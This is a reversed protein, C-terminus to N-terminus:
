QLQHPHYITKYHRHIDPSCFSCSLPGLAVVRRPTSHFHNRSIDMMAWRYRVKNALYSISFPVPLQELPEVERQIRGLLLIVSKYTRLLGDRVGM